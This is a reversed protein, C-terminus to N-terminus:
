ESTLGGSLARPIECGCEWVCEREPLKSWTLALGFRLTAAGANVGLPNLRLAGANTGEMDEVANTGLGAPKLADAGAKLGVAGTNLGDAGANLGDAGTKLGDAGTNLGEAGAKSGEAGTKEGRLALPLANEKRAGASAGVIDM